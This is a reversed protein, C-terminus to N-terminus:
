RPKSTFNDGKYLYTARKNKTWKWRKELTATGLSWHTWLLNQTKLTEQKKNSSGKNKRRRKFFFITPVVWCLIEWAWDHHDFLKDWIRGERGGEECLWVRFGLGLWGRRLLQTFNWSGVWAFAYCFCLLVKGWSALEITALSTGLELGLLFCLLVKGLHWSLSAVFKTEYRELVV